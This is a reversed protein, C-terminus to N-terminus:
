ETFVKSRAVKIHLIINFYLADCLFVTSVTHSAIGKACFHLMDDATVVCYDCKKQM